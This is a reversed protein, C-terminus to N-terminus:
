RVAPRAPPGSVPDGPPDGPGTRGRAAGRLRSRAARRLAPLAARAPWGGAAIRLALEGTEAVYAELRDGAARTLRPRVPLVLGRHATGDSTLRVEVASAGADLRLWLGWSRDALGTPRIATEPVLVAEWTIEGDRLRVTAPVEFVRGERHRDRIELAGGLETGPGIRGLPNVVTGSVRLARGARCMRTVRGGLRLASLPATAIGLDTIDLVRRGLPTGLHAGPWYVRGDREVPEIALVPKGAGRPAYDAAAMAADARGELVMLAAIAPVRGAEEVLTEDLEAVYSRALEVFAERHGPERCRLERLCRPLVRGVFRAEVRRALPEAGRARLMAGTRRLIELRDAFDGLDTCPVGGSDAFRNYARDPVVVIAEAAAYARATFLLDAHRPRDLFRLGERDLFARRYCKGAAVADDLLEPADLIGCHLRREEYLRPFRTREGDRSVRVRRGAVLDAGAQAAATVMTKCAHPDLTDGGDLFMVYRGRAYRLGLNRARGDGGSREPLAFARVRDSAGAVLRPVARAAPGGGAEGVIVVEVGPLSQELASRVARALRRPDDRAVVVVTVDPDPLM